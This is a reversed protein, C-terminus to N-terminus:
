QFNELYISIDMNSNSRNKAYNFANRSMRDYEDKDMNVFYQMKELILEENDLPLDWGVNESDLNRWPTRDSIIIPCGGILSESISHGFNEGLTLLIAVHNKSYIENVQENAVQGHYIVTINTDLKNIVTKCKEWYIEDEIPGYINFEVEGKVKKLIKLTQLLNKMPHIRAIYVLKIIGITKSLDKSYKINKYNATLNNATFIKINNGFIGKIYIEEIHTTSHWIVGKYLNLILALKIYLKKKWSKFGLAGETFQGRPAIIVKKHPTMKLKNLVIPVIGYKYSFFSNLYLIDCDISNIVKKIKGWTLFSNNTYLVKAEGVQIWEDTVINNYPKDDGLDRDSAVIYFELEDALNEVINKISQIPGGGKVGPLYLGAM